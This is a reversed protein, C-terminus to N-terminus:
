CRTSLVQTTSEQRPKPKGCCSPQFVVTAIMAFAALWRYEERRNGRGFMSRIRRNEYKEHMPREEHDSLRYINMFAFLWEASTIFLKFFILWLIMYVDITVTAIAAFGFLAGFLGVLLYRWKNKMGHETVPFV